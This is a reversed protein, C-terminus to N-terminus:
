KRSNEPLSAGAARGYIENNYDSIIGATKTVSVDRGSASPALASKNYLHGKLAVKNVLKEERNRELLILSSKNDKESKIVKM